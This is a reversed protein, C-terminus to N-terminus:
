RDPRGLRSMYDAVGALDEPVLHETLHQHQPRMNSRREADADQLRRLLYEFQQGGTRPVLRLDSGKGQAGHCSQCRRAYLKAGREVWQGSGTATSAAPPLSSVYASVDALDQTTHLVHRGAIREMPDYWRVGTRFDVLEKAIVRRHQGAIEPPWGSARGEGQGGHCAACIKFLQRGRQLDPPTDLVSRLQQAAGAADSNTAFEATQALAMYLVLVYSQALCLGRASM